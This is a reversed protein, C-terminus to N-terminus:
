QLTSVMCRLLHVWSLISTLHVPNVCLVVILVRSLSPIPIVAFLRIVLQYNPHTLDHLISAIAVSTVRYQGPFALEVPDCQVTFEESFQLACGCVNLINSDATFIQCM